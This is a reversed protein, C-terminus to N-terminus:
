SITESLYIFRKVEWEREKREKEQLLWRVDLLKVVLLKVVLLRLWYTHQEKELGRKRPMKSVDLTKLM